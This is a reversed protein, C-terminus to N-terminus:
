RRTSPFRAPRAREYAEIADEHRLTLGIDDVGEARLREAAAIQAAIIGKADCAGRGYLAADAERAPIHPPVTDLHTSFVLRPPHGTTALVNPRDPAADFLDVRYGLDTLHRGLYVAM